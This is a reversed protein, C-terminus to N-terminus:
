SSGPPMYYQASSMAPVQQVGQGYAYFEQSLHQKMYGQSPYFQPLPTQNIETDTNYRLHNSMPASISGHHTSAGYLSGHNPVYASSALSANGRHDETSYGEFGRSYSGSAFPQTTQSCGSFQYYGQGYSKM